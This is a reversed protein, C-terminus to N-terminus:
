RTLQGLHSGPLVGPRLRPTFPRVPRGTVAFYDAEAIEWHCFDCVGTDYWGCPYGYDPHLCARQETCGCFSCLQEGCGRCVGSGAALDYVSSQSGCSACEVIRNLDLIALPPQIIAATM